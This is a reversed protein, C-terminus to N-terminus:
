PLAQIEAGTVTESASRFIKVDNCFELRDSLSAQGYDHVADLSWTSDTTLSLGTLDLIRDNIDPQPPIGPGSLVQSNIDNPDYTWNLQIDTITRGRYVLNPVIFFTATFNPPPYTINVGDTICDSSTDTVIDGSFTLSTANEKVLGCSDNYIDIGGSGDGGEPKDFRIDPFLLVLQTTAQTWLPNTVAWKKLFALPSTASVYDAIAMVGSNQMVQESTGSVYYRPIFLADKTNLVAEGHGIATVTNTIVGASVGPKPPRQFFNM